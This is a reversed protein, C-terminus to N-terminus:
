GDDGYFALRASTPLAEAASHKRNGTKPRAEMAGEDTCM